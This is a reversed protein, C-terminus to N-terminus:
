EKRTPEIFCALGVSAFICAAAAVMVPSAGAPILDFLLCWCWALLSLFALTGIFLSCIKKM